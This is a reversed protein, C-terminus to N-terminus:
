AHTLLTGCQLLGPVAEECDSDASFVRGAKVQRNDM